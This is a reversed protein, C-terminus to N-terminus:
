SIQGALMLFYDRRAREQRKVHRRAGGANRRDCRVHEPCAVLSSYLIRFEDPTCVVEETIHPFVGGIEEHFSYKSVAQTTLLSYGLGSLM